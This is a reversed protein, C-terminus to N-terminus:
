NQWVGKAESGLEHDAIIRDGVKNLVDVEGDCVAVISKGERFEDSIIVRGSDSQPFEHVKHLLELSLDSYYIVTVKRLSVQSMSKM